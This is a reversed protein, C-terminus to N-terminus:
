RRFSRLWYGPSSFGLNNNELTDLGNVLFMGIERM